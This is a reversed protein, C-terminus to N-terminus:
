LAESALAEREKEIQARRRSLGVVKRWPGDYEPELATVIGTWSDSYQSGPLLMEDGVEVDDLDTEYAYRGNILVKM